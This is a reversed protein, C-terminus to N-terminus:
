FAAFPSPEGAIKIFCTPKAWHVRKRLPSILAKTM